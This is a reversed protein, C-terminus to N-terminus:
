ALGKQRNKYKNYLYAGGGVLGLGLAGLGLTPLMSSDLMSAGPSMLSSSDDQHQSMYENRGELPQTLLGQAHQQNNQAYNHFDLLNQPTFNTGKALKQLDEFNGTKYYNNLGVENEGHKGGLIEAYDRFKTLGMPTPALAEQIYSTYLM